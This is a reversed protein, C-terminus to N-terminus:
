GTKQQQVRRGTLNNAICQQVYTMCRQQADAVALYPGYDVGERTYFYWGGLNHQASAVHFFRKSRQFATIPMTSVTEQFM